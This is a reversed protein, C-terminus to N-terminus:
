SEEEMEDEDYHVPLHGNQGPCVHPGPGMPNLCLPCIPRGASVVMEAEACLDRAQARSIRCTVRPEGTPEELDHAIVVLRDNREDYGLEMRGARFQQRTNLDFPAITDPQEFPTIDETIQDLVQELAIGLAQLQQKEMWIVVTEHDIRAVFRFRRQGPEGIAEVMIRVADGEVKDPRQDM